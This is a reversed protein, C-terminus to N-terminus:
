LVLRNYDGNIMPKRKHLGFMVNKTVSYHPTVAPWRYCLVAKIIIATIVANTPLTVQTIDAAKLHQMIITILTHFDMRLM